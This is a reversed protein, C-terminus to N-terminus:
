KGLKLTKVKNKPVMRTVPANSVGLAAAIEGGETGLKMLLLVLLKKIDELEQQTEAM